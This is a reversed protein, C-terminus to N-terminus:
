SFIFYFHPSCICDADIFKMRDSNFDYLWKIIQTSEELNDGYVIYKNKVNLDFKQFNYKNKLRM